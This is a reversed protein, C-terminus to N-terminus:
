SRSGASRWRRCSSTPPSAWAACGGRRSSSSRSRPSCSGRRAGLTKSTLMFLAVGVAYAVLVGPARSRVLLVLTLVVFVLGLTAVTVNVDGFPHDLFSHLRDWNGRLSMREGWGGEQTEFWARPEGTRAWLFVQFAVFGLPALLPAALARWERRRLIAVAAAWACALVVALANPRTATALAGFAGALEWRQALLMSLCLVVLALMLPESYAMSLVVAGPFCCLLAVGRDAAGQDWVRRLLFWLAVVLVCGALGGVVFASTDLAFGFWRVVRIAFPYLPFFASTNAGVSGDPNRPLVGPYGTNAATLYWGGDWTTLAGSITLGPQIRSAM